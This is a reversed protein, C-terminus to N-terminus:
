LAGNALQAEALDLLTVAREYPAACATALDLARALHGIAEDHQGQAAAIEGNARYAALLALPQRPTRAERLAETAAEHTRDLHGSLRRYRAWRVCGEAHGPTSDAWLTWRDHADLWARATPLDDADRALTAALRQLALADLFIVDGPESTPGEPLREHVLSWALAQDGQYQALQALFSTAFPQWQTRHGPARVALAIEQTVAWEGELLLLPLHAIQRALDGLAESAREWAAAAGDAFQRRGVLDDAVYPLVVEYLHLGLTNGVQYWHEM